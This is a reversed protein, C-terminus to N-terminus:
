SSSIFSLLCGAECGVTRKEGLRGRPQVNQELSELQPDRGGCIAM